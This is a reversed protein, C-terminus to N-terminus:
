QAQRGSREQVRVAIETIHLPTPSEVLVAEIIPMLSSGVNVLLDEDGDTGSFNLNPLVEEWLEDRLEEGPGVLMGNVLVNAEARTIRTEVQSKMLNLTSDILSDWQKQQIQTVFYQGNHSILSVAGECCHELIWDFTYPNEAVGAFWPDLVDLGFLPLASQRDKLHGLLRPVLQNKFPANRRLILLNATEIQM